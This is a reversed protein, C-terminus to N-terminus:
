SCVYRGHGPTHVSILSVELLKFLDCDVLQCFAIREFSCYFLFIMEYGLGSSCLFCAAVTIHCRHARNHLVFFQLMLDFKKCYMCQMHECYMNLQMTM